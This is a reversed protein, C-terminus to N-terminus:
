KRNWEGSIVFDTNDTEHNQGEVKQSLFRLWNHKMFLTEVFKFKWRKDM